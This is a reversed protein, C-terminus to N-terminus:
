LHEIDDAYDLLRDIEISHGYVQARDRFERARTRVVEPDREDLLYSLEAAFIKGAPSNAMALDIQLRDAYAELVDLDSLTSISAIADACLRHVADDGGEDEWSPLLTIRFAIALRDVVQLQLERQAFVAGLQETVWSVSDEGGYLGLLSIALQLNRLTAPKLVGGIQAYARVRRAIEEKRQRLVHAVVPRRVLPAMQVDATLDGAAHSLEALQELTTAKSIRENAMDVDELRGLLFDRLGPNALTVVRDTNPGEITIWIPQLSQWADIWVKAPGTDRVLDRLESLPVPRSRLTALTLVIESALESLTAWSVSWVSEPSALANRLRALAEDATTDSTLQECVVEILRPNFSPHRVASVTRRDLEVIRREDWSLGAFQLHNLLVQKRTEQNWEGLSVELQPPRDEALRRLSGSASQEARKLVETPTTIILRKNEDRRRAIAAMFERIGSADQQATPSLDAEGIPDPYFFLQRTGDPRLLQWAQELDGSVHVVQWGLRAQQLCMFEALYTKGIGPPGTLVLNGRRALVDFALRYAPTEVWYKAREAASEIMALSRNWSGANIISNLVGSSSLWLKFHRREVDPHRALVRNLRSPGWVDEQPIRLIAMIESETQATVLGSTVLIYRKADKYGNKSIEKEVEKVLKSKGSRVYHKCQVVVRTGDTFEQLLDIGQDRGAPYSHLDLGMEANLLDCVFYEFDSDSLTQFTYDSVRL